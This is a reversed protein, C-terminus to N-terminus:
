RRQKTIQPRLVRWAGRSNDYFEILISNEVHRIIHFCPGLIDTNNGRIEDICNSDNRLGGIKSSLYEDLNINEANPKDLKNPWLNIMLRSMSDLTSQIGVLAEKWNYFFSKSELKDNLLGIVEISIDNIATDSYICISKDLIITNTDLLGHMILTDINQLLENNIEITSHYLISDFNALLNTYELISAEVNREWEKSGCHNIFLQVLDVCRATLDLRQSLKEELFSNQISDISSKYLERIVYDRNYFDIQGSCFNCFVVSIFLFLRM